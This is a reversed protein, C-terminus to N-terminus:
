SKDGKKTFFQSTTEEQRRALRQLKTTLREKLTQFYAATEELGSARAYRILPELLWSETPTIEPKLTGRRLNMEVWQISSPTHTAHAAVTAIAEQFIVEFDERLDYARVMQGVRFVRHLLERIEEAPASELVQGANLPTFEGRDDIACIQGLLNSTLNILAKDFELRTASSYPAQEFWGNRDEALIELCRQRTRADGGAIRTQGKPGPRYLTRAGGGERLGTQITIGRLLRCVVKPMADPWLEPLRGFLIAEEIKEVFIQRFRQFYIGNACLIFLPLPPEPQLLQGADHLRVSLEVIGTIVDLIQDPNTCVLVIEPLDGSECCTLLDPKLFRDCAINHIGEPTAIAIQGSERLSAASKSHRREIFFTDEDLQALERTLHYFFGVGLAGPPLIGISGKQIATM